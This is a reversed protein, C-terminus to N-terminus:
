NQSLAQELIADIKSNIQDDTNHKLTIAKAPCECICIENIFPAGFPCSRVCALCASCLDPNVEAVAASTTMEEKCLIKVAQQGASKAMIISEKIFRPSHALGALFIGITAFELPRLKVHAELFLGENTRALKLLRAIQ